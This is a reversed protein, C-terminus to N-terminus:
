ELLPRGAQLEEEIEEASRAALAALLAPEIDRREGFTFLRLV